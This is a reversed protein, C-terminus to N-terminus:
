QTKYFISDSFMKFNEAFEASASSDKCVTRAQHGLRPVMRRKDNNSRPERGPKKQGHKQTHGRQKGPLNGPGIERAPKRYRKGTSIERARGQLSGEFAACLADPVGASSFDSKPTLEV